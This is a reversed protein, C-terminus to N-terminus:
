KAKYLDVSGTDDIDLARAAGRSLDIVYPRKENTAENTRDNIRVTVSRGNAENVVRVRSGLPLSHHAATLGDPNYREGSATRGNHEYFTARGHGVKRVASAREGATPVSATTPPRDDGANGAVAAPASLGQAQEVGEPKAFETTPLPATEAPLRALPALQQAVGPRAFHPLPDHRTAFRDTADLPQFEQARALGAHLAASAVVAPLLLGTMRRGFAVRTPM